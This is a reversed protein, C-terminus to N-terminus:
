LRRRGHLQAAHGGGQPVRGRLGQQGASDHAASYHQATIVGLAPDGMGNVIDDDVVDGMGILKIGDKELGREAFQRIFVSGPGSPVFVFVAKPKADAARQLFPAFDPNALPVRLSELVKGGNAEFGKKFWTESDIGPGYDTVITVVSGYHREQRGLRRDHRRDAAGDAVHPGRLAIGATISSTAAAM